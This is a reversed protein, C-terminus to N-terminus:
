FLCVTKLDDRSLSTDVINYSSKEMYPTFIGFFSSIVYERWLPTEM